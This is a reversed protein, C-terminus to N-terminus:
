CARRAQERDGAALMIEVRAPLLKAREVWDTTGAVVQDIAAAAAIPGGRHSSCFLWVRSRSAGAAARM